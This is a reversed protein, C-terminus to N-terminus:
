RLHDRLTTRSIQAAEQMADWTFGEARMERVLERQRKRDAREDTERRDCRQAIKRLEAARTIEM